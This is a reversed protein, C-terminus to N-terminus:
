DFLSMQGVNEGDQDQHGMHSTYIHTHTYAVDGDIFRTRERERKYFSGFIEM